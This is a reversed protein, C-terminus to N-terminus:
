FVIGLSNRVRLLKVYKKLLCLGVGGTEGDLSWNELQGDIFFATNDLGWYDSEHM